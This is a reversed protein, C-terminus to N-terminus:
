RRKKRIYYVMGIVPLILLFWYKKDYDDGKLSLNENSGVIQLGAWYFPSTNRPNTKKIYELKAKQLAESKSLGQKLFDFFSSTIELTSEEDIKWFALLMSKVGISTFARALNINGEGNDRGGLGTECAGLILFDSNSELKYIDELSLFGDSFYIGKKSDDFDVFSQGHSFVSIVSNTKLYESFSKKTALKDHLLLAGYKEEFEKAKAKSIHLEQLEESKFSPLLFVLNNRENSPKSNLHTISSSLVQNFHYKNILYPLKRWDNTSTNKFLLMEFPFNSLEANPILELHNIEHPLLKDIKEFVIKYFKHSHKKFSEIDQNKLSLLIDKQSDRVLDDLVKKDKFVDVLYVDNKLIIKAYLIKDSLENRFFSVIAEKSSLQKQLHKISTIEYNKFLQTNREISDYDVILKMLNSYESKINEKKKNKLFNYSDYLQYIVQRKQYLFEKEKKKNPNLFVTKLLGSYKSKEDYEHIKELHNPNKTIEYLKLYSDFLLSYPSENYINSMYDNSNYIQDQFYRNWIKELLELNKIKQKLVYSDGDPNMKNLITNKAKLLSILFYNYSSFGYPLLASETIKQIGKDCENIATSYDGSAFYLYSKFGHIRASINHNAGVLDEHMKLAKDYLTIARKMHFNPDGNYAGHFSNYAIDFDLAANSVLVKAKKTSNQPIEKELFYNLTDLYKFKNVYTKEDVNRLTFLHAAYLKHVEILNSNKKNKHYINLANLSYYKAKDIEYKINYYRSLSAYYFAKYIPQNPYAKDIAEYYKNIHDLYKNFMFIQDYNNALSLHINAILVFNKFNLKKINELNNKLLSISTHYMGLDSYCDAIANNVKFLSITNKSKLVENKIIELQELAHYPKSAKKISSIRGDINSWLLSPILSLLVIHFFRM